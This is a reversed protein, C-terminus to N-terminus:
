AAPLVLFVRAGTARASALRPHRATLSWRLRHVGPAWDAPITIESSETYRGAPEPPFSRSTIEEREGTVANEFVFLHGTGIRAAGSVAYAVEFRYRSGVRAAYAPERDDARPAASLLRVEGPALSLAAAAPAAPIGILGVVAIAILSRRM